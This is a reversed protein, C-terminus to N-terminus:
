GGRGGGATFRRKRRHLLVANLLFCALGLLIFAVGRILFGVESDFFRLAVVLALLVLAVNVRRLDGDRFGAVALGLALVLLYLNVLLMAAGEGALHALDLALWVTAIGAIWWGAVWGGGLWGEESRRGGGPRPGRGAEGVAEGAAGRRRLGALLAALLLVAAIVLEVGGLWSWEADDRLSRLEAQWTVSYSLVLLTVLAGLRGVARLSAALAPAAVAEGALALALFGTAVVSGPLREVLHFLGPPFGAALTAALAFGLLGAVGGRPDRRLRHVVFPMVAALLLWFGAGDHQEFGRGWAWPVTGLLYLAAGAASELLYVVPLTLVLWLLMLDTWPTGVHYTQAVLSLGSLVALSWLVAAPERWGASPRRVAVWAAFGAALLTPALSLVARTGRSLEAWNHALVLIVGSGMLVAGLVGFLLVARSAERGEPVAYHDAVARAAESPLVGREVLVPLQDLLWRVHSRELM